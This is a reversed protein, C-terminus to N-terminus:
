QAYDEILHLRARWDPPLPWEVIEAERGDPTDFFTGTHVELHPPQMVGDAVWREANPWM